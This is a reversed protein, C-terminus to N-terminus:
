VDPRKILLLSVGVCLVMILGATIYPFTFNIGYLIGGVLPGIGRALSGFSQYAGFVRGQHQPATNKSIMASLAPGVMGNAVAVLAFYIFQLWFPGFPILGLGVAMLANGYVIMRWEGLRKSFFGILFIQVIAMLVGVYAMMYSGQEETLGYGDKFLLTITSQMLSFAAILIFALLFYKNIAKNRASEGLGILINRLSFKEANDRETLSEPLTFYALLFNILCLAASLYGIYQFAFHTYIYGGIPPGFVFGIGFAAGILGMAKARDQPPTVDSIYAQAVTINASGIGALMRTLFLALLSTAQSFSLHAFFGIAITILLVPRRGIRDSLAGL